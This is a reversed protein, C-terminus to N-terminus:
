GRSFVPKLAHLSKSVPYFLGRRMDIVIIWIERKYNHTQKHLSIQQKWPQQLPNYPLIFINYKSNIKQFNNNTRVTVTWM